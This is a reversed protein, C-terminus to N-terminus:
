GIYKRDLYASVTVRALESPAGSSFLDITKNVDERGLKNCSIHHSIKVKSMSESRLEGIINTKM